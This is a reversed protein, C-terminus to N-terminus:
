KWGGARRNTAVRKRKARKREEEAEMRRSITVADRVVDWSEQPDDGSSEMIDVTWAAWGYSGYENADAHWPHNIDQVVDLHPWLQLFALAALIM